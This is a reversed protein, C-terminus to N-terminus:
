PTIREHREEGTEVDLGRLDIYRVKTSMGSGSSAIYLQDIYSDAGDIRVTARYGEPERVVVIPRGINAVMDMIVRDGDEDLKAKFGYAFRRQIWSLKKVPEPRGPRYWYAVVPNNRDLSGDPEIRADYKVIKDNQSRDIHFLPQQTIGDAHAWPVSLLLPLLLLVPVTTIRATM